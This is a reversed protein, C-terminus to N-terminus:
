SPKLKLEVQYYPHDSVGKELMSGGIVDFGKTLIWDIRTPNHIDLGAQAIADIVQLNNQETTLLEILQPNDAMMNFDGMLIATPHIAFEYLVESLQENQGRGTHLHTNILAIEEGQWHLKAVTMNRFSKGSVDHLQSTKWNGLPLKSLLLNGRNERLWRYRTPAFLAAFQGASAFIQAQSSGVGFNNWWSPAYVEQVGVIDAGAMAQAAAVPNRQVNLDKGTQVNFTAVILTDREVPAELSAALVSLQNAGLAQGQRNEVPRPKRAVALLVIALLILIFGLRM